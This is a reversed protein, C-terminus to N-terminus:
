AVAHMSFREYDWLLAEAYVASGALSPLTSSAGANCAEGRILRDQATLRVQAAVRVQAALRVQM